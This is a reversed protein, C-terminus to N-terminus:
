PSVILDSPPEDLTGLDDPLEIAPAGGLSSHLVQEATELYGAQHGGAAHNRIAENIAELVARVDSDKAEPATAISRRESLVQALWAAVKDLHPSGSPHSYVIGKTRTELTKLATGIVAQLEEDSLSAFRARASLMLHHTFLLLM